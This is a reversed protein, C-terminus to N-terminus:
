KLQIQKSSGIAIMKIATTIHKKAVEIGDENLKTKVEDILEQQSIPQEGCQTFIALLCNRASTLEPSDLDKAYYRDFANITIQPLLDQLLSIDSVGFLDM